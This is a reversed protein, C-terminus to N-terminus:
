SEFGLRTLTARAQRTVEDLELGQYLSLKGLFGLSGDLQGKPIRFSFGGGRRSMEWFRSWFFTDELHTIIEENGSWGGTAIYWEYEDEDRYNKVVTIQDFKAGSPWWISAIYEIMQRPSGVFNDLIELAVATPYGDQDILEETM